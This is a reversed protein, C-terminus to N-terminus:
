NSNFLDRDDVSRTVVLRVPNIDKVISGQVEVAGNVKLADEFRTTTGTRVATDDIIKSVRLVGDVVLSPEL